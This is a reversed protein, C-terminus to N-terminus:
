NASLAAVTWAAILLGEAAADLLYIRPIVGRATYWVDIATLGLASGIALTVVEADARDRYGALLLVLGVVGVQIGVTKVLWKDTKSGTVAEFTRMSLLPWVGTVFFYAGQGLALWRLADTM